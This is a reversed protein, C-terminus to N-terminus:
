MYLATARSPSEYVRSFLLKPYNITEIAKSLTLVNRHTYVKSGTSGTVEHGILTDILAEPIQADALQTRVTHRMCHFDPYRGLGLAKRCEGFWQSFYGGPKGERIPLLPWLVVESTAQVAAVYDLFGLRILEPHIPVKRRGAATKVTQGDGADTISLVASAVFVEVDIVRLQALEGVRAGTYLGLLPIWYAADAGAKKNKPLKYATYLDQNFFTNLEDATWPRRKNTTRFPIELGDWPNRGIVKIERCAFGLLANVWVLRDHSTKSTCPLTLLWDRFQAGHLRQLVSLPPNGSHKEYLALARGCAATTDPSRRKAESWERYVDRLYVPQAPAVHAGAPSHAPKYGALVEARKLTGQLVAGRYTSPSLTHVYRGNRYKARLPHDQPLVIRLYYSGGRQFLGTLQAM